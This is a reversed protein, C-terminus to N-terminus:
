INEQNARDFVDINLCAVFLAAQLVHTIVFFFMSPSVKYFLIGDFLHDPRNSLSDMLTKKQQGYALEEISLKNLRM